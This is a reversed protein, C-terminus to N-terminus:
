NKMMTSYNQAVHIGFAVHPFEYKGYGTTFVAYIRSNEAMTISYYCSRADLTSFLNTEHLKSFIRDIGMVAYPWYKLQVNIKRFDVAKSYTVKHM